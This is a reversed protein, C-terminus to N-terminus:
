AKDTNGIPEPLTSETVIPVPFVNALGEAAMTAPMVQVLLGRAQLLLLLQSTSLMTAIDPLTISRPRGPTHGIQGTRVLDRVIASVRQAPVGIATGLESFSPSCGYASYHRRVAELALLRRSTMLRTPLLDVPIM